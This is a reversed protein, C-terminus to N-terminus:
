GRHCAFIAQKSAKQVERSKKIVNERAQDAEDFRVKIEALAKLCPDDEDVQTVSDTKGILSQEYLLDELRKVQYKLGDFRRRLPGNRFAALAGQLAKVGDRCVAISAADGATARGVAYKALNEAGGM